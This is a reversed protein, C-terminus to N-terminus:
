FNFRKKFDNVSLLKEDRLSLIPKKIPWNIKLEPDNWLLGSEGEPRYSATMKYIVEAPKDGLVCFGHAFGEPIWLTEEPRESDLDISIAKLFSPSKPRIDVCVDFIKGSAVWVLKGQPPDFQFHLGRLVGPLSRSQNDQSFETPLGAGLFSMKDFRETFNGRQDRFVESEIVIPGKVNHDLARVKL